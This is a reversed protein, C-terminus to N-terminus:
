QVWAIASVPRFVTDANLAVVAPAGVAGATGPATEVTANPSPYVNCPGGSRNIVVISVYREVSPLVVGAGAPCSTLVNTRAILLTGTASTTGAGAVNPSLSAERFGSVDTNAAFADARIGAATQGPPVNQYPQALAPAAALTFLAAFLTRNM